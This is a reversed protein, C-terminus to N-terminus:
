SHKTRGSPRKRQGPPFIAAKRRPDATPSAYIDHALLSLLFRAGRVWRFSLGRFCFTKFGCKRGRGYEWRRRGKPGHVRTIMGYQFMNVHPDNRGGLAHGGMNM